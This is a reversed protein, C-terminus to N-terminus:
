ARAMRALTAPAFLTAPSRRRSGIGEFTGYVEDDTVASRYMARELPNAPRASALDSILFHHLGLRRRHVKRYSDLAADLDGGGVLADATEEV